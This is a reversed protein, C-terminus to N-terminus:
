KRLEDKYDIVKKVADYIQEMDENPGMLYRHHFCVAEHEYLKKCVPLDFRSPDLKKWHEETLRYRKKTLPRYLSCDNLPQYCSELLFGLEKSVATRFTKADVGLVNEDIRFAFNFFTKKTLRHDDRLPKIGPISKLLETLNKANVERTANQMELRKFQEILVATQFETIRYNGSQIFDGEESYQGASKDIEVDSPKRGCNRLADLRMWIDYNNTTLIGGEGCTLVKSLQLSFSGIDGITGAKKGKWEGGHKHAADEIVKLDYKKAIEMIADMDAMHGYLHVPIIAKTRPTIAKEVQAPDICFTDENVDVFIPIANVDAVAAATAQWTLGPVIVEDGYGIELAELALQLTITGNAALVAHKAGTFHKWRNIFEQENKGNYSWVGSEIVKQLADKEENGWVPWQHWPHEKVDRVPIGGKVALM